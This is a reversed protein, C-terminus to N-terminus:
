ATTKAAKKPRKALLDAALERRIQDLSVYEGGADTGRRCRPGTAARSETGRGAPGARLHWYLADRILQTRARGCHAALKHAARVIDKPLSVTIRKAPGDGLRIEAILL